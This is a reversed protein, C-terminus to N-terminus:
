LNYNYNNKKNTEVKPSSVENYYAMLLTIILNTDEISNMPTRQCQFGFSDLALIFKM